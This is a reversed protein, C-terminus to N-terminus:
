LFTLPVLAETITEEDMAPPRRDEGAVPNEM